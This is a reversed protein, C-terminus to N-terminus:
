PEKYSTARVTLEAQAPDEGFVFTGRAREGGALFPVSLQATVPPDDGLILEAEIQVDEVTADGDNLIEVPLYYESDAEWREEVLPKVIISVPEESGRLNLWAILGVIGLVIAISVALTILEAATRGSGQDNGDDQEPSRSDRAGPESPGDIRSQTM